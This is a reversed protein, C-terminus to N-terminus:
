GVQSLKLSYAGELPGLATRDRLFERNRAVLVAFFRRINV